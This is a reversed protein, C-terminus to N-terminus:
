MVQVISSYPTCRESREGGGGGETFGTVHGTCHLQLTHM